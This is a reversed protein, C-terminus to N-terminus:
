YNTVHACSKVCPTNLTHLIISLDHVVCVKIWALPVDAIPSAYDGVGAVVLALSPVADARM